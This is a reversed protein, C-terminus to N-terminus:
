LLTYMAAQEGWDLTGNYKDMVLMFFMSYTSSVIGFPFVNAVVIKNTKLPRACVAV